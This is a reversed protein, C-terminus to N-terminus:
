NLKGKMLIYETIEDLNFIYDACGTAIAEAPMTNFEATEPNQVITTGGNEKIKKIGESGDRNAGTLIIGTLNNRFANAATQFLVDISPRSYNVLPDNSLSFTFNSEILIHYNPPAFYVIGNHIKEKEEVQRIKIKCKHGLIKELLEREDKSRHQVIIVPLSFDKPFAQLIVTLAHLGGASTGIVIAENIGEPNM